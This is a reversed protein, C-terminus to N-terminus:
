LQAIKAHYTGSKDKWVTVACGGDVYGKTCKAFGVGSSGSCVETGVATGCGADRATLGQNKIDNEYLFALIGKEFQFQYENNKKYIFVADSEADKLNALNDTLLKDFLVSESSEGINQEQKCSIVSLFLIFVSLTSLISKKM